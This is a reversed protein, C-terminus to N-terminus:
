ISWFNKPHPLIQCINGTITPHIAIIGAVAAFSLQFGINELQKPNAAVIVLATTLLASWKGSERHALGTSRYILIMIAARLVSADFGSILAYAMIFLGCLILKLTRTRYSMDMLYLLTSIIGYIIGIHLGSQALIHMAGSDRYAQKTSNPILSKDGITFAIAVARDEKDTIIHALKDSFSERAAARFEKLITFSKSRIEISYQPRQCNTFGIIFMTVYAITTYQPFKIYLLILIASTALLPLTPIPIINDTLLNAINGLLFPIIFREGRM